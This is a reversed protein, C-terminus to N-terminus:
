LSDLTKILINISSRKPAQKVWSRIMERDLEKLAEREIRLDEELFSRAQKVSRFLVGTREVIIDCLAKEPGAMLVTQNTAWEVQRIGFCYYPLKLQIYRFLGLPTNFSRSAGITMSTVTTVMEPILGWHALAPELSVYSPGYIHNALLYRSPPFRKLAPGTIYLGRKVPTLIEKKQLELIKNHPRRYEKLLDMLIAQTVPQGEYEQLAQEIIM